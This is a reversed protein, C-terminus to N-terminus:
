AAPTDVLTVDPHGLVSQMRICAQLAHMAEAHGGAPVVFVRRGMFPAAADVDLDALPIVKCSPHVRCARWADACHRASQQETVLPM